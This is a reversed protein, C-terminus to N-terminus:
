ERVLRRVVTGATGELRLLYIGTPLHSLNLQHTTPTASNQVTSSFVVQGVANLITVQAKGPQGTVELRLRGDATPNPYLTLGAVALPSRAATIVLPASATSACGAANTVVVTYRGLQTPGNVVYTPSTAGVIAVGDLYFQNGTPSSSILTTTPGNYQVTLTPTAPLANVVVAIAGSTEACGEANTVRVSYQGGTTAVYAAATAGSIPAGDRLFQYTNGADAPATLQVSGGQCFTTATAATLTATPLAVIRVTATASTAACGGGAEVTNTVVYTGPASATLNLMGTAADVVLGATSTFRGATSASSVVPVPNAGGVCYSAATYAFSAVPAATITVSATASSPCSGAVAYTVSYTGPRSASLDIAGTSVNFVLGVPAASFSGGATGTVVPTPNTGSQCYTSGTYAFTATTLPNVTVTTAGSTAVCGEANTVRVSYQGSTTASYAATTAGNIPTGDRLFQYTNGADAPATLQVSGGQCFTTATAATLTATPLAVIRM